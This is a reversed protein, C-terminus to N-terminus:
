GPPQIAGPRFLQRGCTQRNGFLDSLACDFEAMTGLKERRGVAMVWPLILDGANRAVIQVGLIRGKITSVIKIVGELENQAEARDNEALPWRVVSIKGFKERAEDELMGVHALEPDTYTVWPM